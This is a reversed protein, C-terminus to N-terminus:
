KVKKEILKILDDKKIKSTYEVKHKDAIDKLEPITKETYDVKKILNPPREGGLRKLFPTNYKNNRSTLVTERGKDIPTSYREGKNYVRGDVDQFRRIVKYGM